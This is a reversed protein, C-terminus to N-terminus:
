LTRSARRPQPPAGPAAASGVLRRGAAAVPEARAGRFLAAATAFATPRFMARLEALGLLPLFVLIIIFSGLRSVAGGGADGGRRAWTSGRGGREQLVRHINEIVIISGGAVKGIGIALGGISM